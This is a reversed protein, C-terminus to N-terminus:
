QAPCAPRRRPLGVKLLLLDTMRLGTRLKIRICAQLMRVSGKKRFPKLSLAEALEWNDIYRDRGKPALDGELRLEKKFPHAKMARWREVAYTYAHSLVELERHAATIAPKGTRKDVRREVYEELARELTDGLRFQKKGDWHQEQGAPVRYYIAGHM